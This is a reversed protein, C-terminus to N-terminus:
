GLKEFCELGASDPLAGACTRGYDEYGSGIPADRYLEDCAQTNGSECQDWLLDLVLDDGYSGASGVRDGLCELVAEDVDDPNDVDLAQIACRAEQRSLVTGSEAAGEIFSDVFADIRSLDEVCEVTVALLQGDQDPTLLADIITAPEVGIDIMGQLVCRQEDLSLETDVITAIAAAEEATPPGDDGCSTALLVVSAVVAVSRLPTLRNPYPWLELVRM